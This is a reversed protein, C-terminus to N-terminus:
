TWLFTPKNPVDVDDVDVDVEVKVCSTLESFNLEDESGMFNIFTKLSSSGLVAVEVKM